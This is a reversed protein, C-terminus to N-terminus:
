DAVRFHAPVPKAYKRSGEGSYGQAIALTSTSPRFWYDFNSSEHGAFMIQTDLTHRNEAGEVVLAALETQCEM